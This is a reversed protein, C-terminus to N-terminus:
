YGHPPFYAGMSSATGLLNIHKFSSFSIKNQMHKGYRIIGWCLVVMKIIFYFCLDADFANKRQIKIIKIKWIRLSQM